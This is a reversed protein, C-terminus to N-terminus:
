WATASATWCRTPADSSSSSANWTQQASCACPKGWQRSTVRGVCQIRRDLGDNYVIEFDGQSMRQVLASLQAAPQTIGRVLRLSALMAILLGLATLASVLFIMDRAFDRSAHAADVLDTNKIARLRILSKRLQAFDEPLQAASAQPTQGARWIAVANEFHMYRQELETLASREDSRSFYPRAQEIAIRVPTEAGYDSADADAELPKMMQQMIQTFEAGVQQSINEAAEIAHTNESMLVDVRDALRHISYLALPLVLCM